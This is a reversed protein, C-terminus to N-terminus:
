SATLAKGFWPLGIWALVGAMCPQWFFRAVRLGQLNSQMPVRSRGWHPLCRCLGSPTCGAQWGALSSLAHWEQKVSIVTHLGEQM